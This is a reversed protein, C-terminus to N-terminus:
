TSRTRRATSRASRSERTSGCPSASTTGPGSGLEPSRRRSKRPTRCARRTRSGGTAPAPPPFAPSTTPAVVTPLSFEFWGDEYKLLADFAIEVTVRAGPELNALSQTFVNPREEDLLAAVHGANKAQDYIQRAEDRKKVRAVVRRDGVTMAMDDVAADQPLPFVYVAEVKDRSPNHFVQKVKVRAVFGAVNASVETHELPCDQVVRGDAGM